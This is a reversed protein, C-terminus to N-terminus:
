QHADLPGLNLNPTGELIGETQAQALFIAPNDLEDEEESEESQSPTM